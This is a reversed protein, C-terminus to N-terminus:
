KVIDVFKVDIIKELDELKVEVQHGLKGASFIITDNNKALIDIYKDFEKKMGIPSCGGHIYGTLGLLSASKEMMIKKENTVEAAKKLDLEEAVPVVFVYNKGSHSTTVLTKFVKKVDQGILNAVDKGTMEPSQDLTYHKYEINNKDLIQLVKTKKDKM